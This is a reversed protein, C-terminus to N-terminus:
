SEYSKELPLYPAKLSIMQTNAVQEELHCKFDNLPTKVNRYCLIDDVFHIHTGAMEVLPFMLAVDGACTFIHNTQPDILDETKVKQALWAYYTRPQAFWFGYDRFQNTAIIKQPIKKCWGNTKTPWNQFQGYTLWITSDHYISNLYNLIHNHTFWDDGDLNIIIETPNCLQIAQWINALSGIREKNQILTINKYQKKHIYKNVLNGTQDPSADDIYIVRFNKYNQLFISDLNYRFWKKNNYSPVIIVFPKEDNMQKIKKHQKFWPPKHSCSCIFLLMFGYYIKM